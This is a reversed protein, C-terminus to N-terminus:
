EEKGAPKSKPNRVPSKANVKLTKAHKSASNTSAKEAVDQKLVEVCESLFYLLEKVDVHNDRM